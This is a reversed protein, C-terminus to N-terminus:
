PVASSSDSQRAFILGGRFTCDYGLGTLHVRLLAPDYITATPEYIIASIHEADEKNLNLIIDKEAGECDLKLLDIRFEAILEYVESMSIIRITICQADEEAHEAVITHGGTNSPHVFLSTEASRNSVGMQFCKVNTVGALRLNRELGKFNSPLPEFCWIRADPRMQKMRLTFMGVNAGIDVIVPARKSIADWDYCGDVFIESFIFLDSFSNLVLQELGTVDLIMTRKSFGLPDTRRCFAILLVRIAALKPM